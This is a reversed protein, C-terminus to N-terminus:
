GATAHAADSAAMRQRFLDAISVQQDAAGAGAKAEAMRTRVMEAIDAADSPTTDTAGGPEPDGQEGENQTLAKGSKEGPQEDATSDDDGSSKPETENHLDMLDKHGAAIQNLAKLMRDRNTASLTRGAKAEGGPLSMYADSEDPDAFADGDDDLSPAFAAALSRTYLSSVAETFQAISDEGTQAPDSGSESVLGQAAWRAEWLASCISSVFANFVDSWEEQLTDQAQLSALTTAFDLAKVSKRSPAAGRRSAIRPMSAAGKRSTPAGARAEDKVEAIQADENMPIPTVSGEFVALERLHRRGASDFDRKITFYGISMGSCYGKTMGSYARQGAEIDLDLEGEVFLGTSDEQASTFGGIPEDPNHGWFIPLVYRGGPTGARSKQRSKLELLTKRFAGPEIVDGGQDETSFVALYGSFTGHGEDLTKFSAFNFTKHQPQRRAM